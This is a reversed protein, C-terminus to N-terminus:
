FTRLRTERYIVTDPWCQFVNFCEGANDLDVQFREEIEKKVAQRNVESITRDVFLYKVQPIDKRVNSYEYIDEMGNFHGYEYKNTYKEIEEVPIADTYTVRISSGGTYSESRVRFKIQPFVKKLEERIAKAAAAHESIERTARREAVAKKRMELSKFFSEIKKERQEVSNFRHHWSHNRKAKATYAIAFIGKTTDSNFYVEGLENKVEKDYGSPRYKYM